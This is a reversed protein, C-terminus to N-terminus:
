YFLKLKWFCSSLGSSVLNSLEVKEGHNFELGELLDYSDWSVMPLDYNLM